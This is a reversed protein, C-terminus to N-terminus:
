NAMGLIESTTGPSERGRCIVRFVSLVKASHWPTALNMSSRAQTNLHNSLEVIIADSLDLDCTQNNYSGTGNKNWFQWQM